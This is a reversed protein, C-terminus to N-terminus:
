TSSDIEQGDKYWRFSPAPIATVDCTLIGSGSVGFTTRNEPPSGTTWKPSVLFRYLRHWIHKMSLVTSIGLSKIFGHKEYTIKRHTAHMTPFNENTGVATSCIAKRNFPRTSKILSSCSILPFVPWDVFYTVFMRCVTYLSRVISPQCIEYAVSQNYYRPNTSSFM